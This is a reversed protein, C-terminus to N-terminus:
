VNACVEWLPSTLELLTETINLQKEGPGLESLFVSISIHTTCGKGNNEALSEERKRYIVWINESICSSPGAM